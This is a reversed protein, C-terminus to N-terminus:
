DSQNHGATTSATMHNGARTSSGTRSVGLLRCLIAWKKMVPGLGGGLRPGAIPNPYRAVSNRHSGGHSPFDSRILMRVKSGIGEDAIQSSTGGTSTASAHHDDRRARRCSSRRRTSSTATRSTAEPTESTSTRPSGSPYRKRQRITAPAAVTSSVSVIMTSVTARRRHLAAGQPQDRRSA